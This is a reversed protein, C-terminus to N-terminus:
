SQGVLYLVKVLQPMQSPRIPSPIFLCIGAITKHNFAPVLVITNVWM